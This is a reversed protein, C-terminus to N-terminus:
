VEGLSLEPGSEWLQTLSSHIRMWARKEAALERKGKATLRYYKRKPGSEAERWFSELLGKNELDHLVPYLTGTTWEVDGNTVDRIQQIIDYGYSPGRAFLTLVFPRLSAAVLARPIMM